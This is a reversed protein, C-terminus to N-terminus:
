QERSKQKSSSDEQRRKMAMAEHVDNPVGFGFYQHGPCVDFNKNILLPGQM